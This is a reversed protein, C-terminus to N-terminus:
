DGPAKDAKTLTASLEAHSMIKPKGSVSAGAPKKINLEVSHPSGAPTSVQASRFSAPTPNNITTSTKIEPIVVKPLNIGFESPDSPVFSHVAERPVVSLKGKHVVYFEKEVKDYTIVMGGYRKASLKESLQGDMFLGKAIELFEISVKM